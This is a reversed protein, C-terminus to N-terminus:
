EWYVSRQKRREEAEAEERDHRERKVTEDAAASFLDKSFRPPAAPLSGGNLLHSAISEFLSGISFGVRVGVHDGGRSREASRDNGLPSADTKATTRYEGGTPARTIENTAEHFGRMIAEGANLNGAETLFVANDLGLEQRWRLEGRVARQEDLLQRYREKRDFKLEICANDRRRDLVIKQDAVLRAKMEALTGSETGSERVAYYKSWRERFEERVERYVANRVEKFESKGSNFHEQREVRQIEKLIKWESKERNEVGDSINPESKFQIAEGNEFEREADRFEMWINRPISKERDKSNKLREECYIKGHQREYQLAWEQARVWEFDDNFRLGTEPHVMNLMVHVHAHPKDTHSFYIAQGEAWGMQRLFEDATAIIHEKTPREEPSWSLSFHKVPNEIARGGGRVGAEQKLLEADRVTWLMENVACPVDDNALNRTHTWAVREATKARDADHTLYDACDRFSKGTSHIKPIM